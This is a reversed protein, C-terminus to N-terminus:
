FKVNQMELIINIKGQYILDHIEPPVPKMTEMIVTKDAELLPASKAIKAYRPTTQATEARKKALEEWM